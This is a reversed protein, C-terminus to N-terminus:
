SVPLCLLSAPNLKPSHTLNTKWLAQSLRKFVKLSIGIFDMNRVINTAAMSVVEAVEASLSRQLRVPFVISEHQQSGVLFPLPSCQVNAFLSMLFHQQLPMFCM